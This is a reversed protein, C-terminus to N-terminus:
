PQSESLNRDASSGTSASNSLKSEEGLAYACLEEFSVGNERSINLLKQFADMVEPPIPRGHFSSFCPCLVGSLNLNHFSRCDRIM